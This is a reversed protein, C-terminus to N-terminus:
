EGAPTTSTSIITGSLARTLAFGNDYIEQLEAESLSERDVTEGTFELGRFVSSGDAATERIERAIADVPTLQIVMTSTRGDEFWVTVTLTHGSFGELVGRPAIRTTENSWLGFWYDEARQGQTEDVTMDVVPGLRKMLDIRWTTESSYLLARAEEDTYTNDHFLAYTNPVEVYINDYGEILSLQEATFQEKWMETAAFDPSSPKWARAVKIFEPDEDGKLQRPTYSFLEGHDTTIQFREIGEGRINFLCNTYYGWEAFTDESPIMNSFGREDGFFLLDNINTAMTDSATDAYAQITFGVSDAAQPAATDPKAGPGAGTQYLSIGTGVVALTLCAAAVLAFRRLTVLRHSAPRRIPRTDAAHDAPIHSNSNREDSASNSVQAARVLTEQRLEKSVRIAQQAAKYRARLDNEPATTRTTTTENM